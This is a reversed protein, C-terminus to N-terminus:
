DEEHANDCPEDDDVTRDDEATFSKECPEVSSIDEMPGDCCLPRKKKDKGSFEVIRGCEGCRFIMKESTM